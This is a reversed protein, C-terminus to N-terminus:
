PTGNGPELGFERLWADTDGPVAAPKEPTPPPPPAPATPPEDLMAAFEQSRIWRCGRRRAATGPGRDSTVVSVNAPSAAQEILDEIVEDAKRAESFRVDLGCARMQQWVGPTPPPGDFVVIVEARNRAAWAGVVNCLAHRGLGTAYIHLLNNGDLIYRM